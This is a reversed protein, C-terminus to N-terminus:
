VTWSIHQHFINTDLLMIFSVVTIVMIQVELPKRTSVFTLFDFLCNMQSYKRLFFLYSSAHMLFKFLPKRMLKGTPSNPAIIYLMCYFPFMLAIYSIHILKQPLPKRRFGPLGDYWISALMQQISPHAVFQFVTFSNLHKFFDSETRLSIM